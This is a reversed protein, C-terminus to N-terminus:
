VKKNNIYTGGGIRNSSYFCETRSWHFGERGQTFELECETKQDIDHHILGDWEWNNKRGCKGHGKSKHARWPRITNM